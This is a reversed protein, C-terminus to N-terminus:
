GFFGLFTNGALIINKIVYYVVWLILLGIIIKILKEIVVSVGKKDL